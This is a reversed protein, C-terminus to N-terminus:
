IIIRNIANVIGRVGSTIQGVPADLLSGLTCLLPGVAGSARPTVSLGPVDAFVADGLADVRVPALDITVVDCQGRGSSLVQARTLFDQTVIETGLAGGSLQLVGEAEVGIINGALDEVVALETIIAQDVDVSGIEGILPASVETLNDIVLGSGDARRALQPISAAASETITDPAVPTDGCAGVAIAVVILVATKRANQMNCKEKSQHHDM